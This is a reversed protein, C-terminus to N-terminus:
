RLTISPMALRHQIGLYKNNKAIGKDTNKFQANYILAFRYIKTTFM